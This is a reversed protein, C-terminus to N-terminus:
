KHLDSEGTKGIDKKTSSDWEGCLRQRLSQVTHSTFYVFETRGGSPHGIQKARDVPNENATKMGENEKFRGKADHAAVHRMNRRRVSPGHASATLVFSRPLDYSTMYLADAAEKKQLFSKSASSVTASDMDFIGVIEKERIVMLKGIHLFLFM